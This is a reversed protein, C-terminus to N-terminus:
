SKGKLMPVSRLHWLVESTLFSVLDSLTTANSPVTEEWLPFAM